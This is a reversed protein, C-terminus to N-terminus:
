KNITFVCACINALMFEIDLMLCFMNESEWDLNPPSIPTLWDIIERHSDPSNSGDSLSM